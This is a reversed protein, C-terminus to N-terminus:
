RIGLDIGGSIGAISFALGLNVDIDHLVSKDKSSFSLVGEFSSGTTYGIVFYYGNM